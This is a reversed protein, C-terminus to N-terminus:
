AVICYDPSSNRTPNLFREFYLGYRIPEIESIGLIFAVECGGVSGRGIGYPINNNKCYNAFDQVILFYGAYGKSCIIDVEYRIRDLVEKTSIGKYHGQSLRLKFGKNCEEKLKDELNGEIKPRPQLDKPEISVECKDVIVQTNAICCDVFSKPLYTLGARIEEESQIYCDNSAFRLRKEDDKKKKTQVCLLTDHSDADEKRIYHADCTVIPAINYKLSLQMIFKNYRIQEEMTNPQIELYFDDGFTEIMYKIYATYDIDKKWLDALESGLCATTCILGEHYMDLDKLRIRPKRYFNDYGCRNLAFLNKLGINNKAILLTHFLNHDEKEGAYAELGILPKIGKKKLTDYFEYTKIMSGHDTIACATQGLEILRDALRDVRIAGDLLSGDTHLHLHAFNGM